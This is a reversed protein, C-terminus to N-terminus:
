YAFPTINLAPYKSARDVEQQIVTYHEILVFRDYKCISNRYPTKQKARDTPMTCGLASSFAQQVPECLAGRSKEADRYM